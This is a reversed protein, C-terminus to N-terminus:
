ILPPKISTSVDGIKENMLDYDRQPINSSNGGIKEIKEEKKPKKHENQHMESVKKMFKTRKVKCIKCHSHNPRNNFDCSSCIWRENVKSKPQSEDGDENLVRDPVVNYGGLAMNSAENNVSEDSKIRAIGLPAEYAM